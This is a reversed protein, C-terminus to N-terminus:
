VPTQPFSFPQQLPGPTSPMGPLCLPQLLRKLHRQTHAKAPTMLGFIQLPQHSTVLGFGAPTLSLVANVAITLPLEHALPLRQSHCPGHHLPFSVGQGSLAGEAWCSSGVHSWPSLM